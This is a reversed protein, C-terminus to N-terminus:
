GRVPSKTQRAAVAVAQGLAKEAAAYAQARCDMAGFRDAADNTYCVRSAALRIRKEIATRGDASVLEAPTYHVAATPVSAPAEAMAPDAYAVLGATGVFSAGVFMLTTLANRM